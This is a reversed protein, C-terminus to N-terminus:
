TCASTCAPSDNFGRAPPLPPPRKKPPSTPPL